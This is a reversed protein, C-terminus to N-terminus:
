PLKVYTFRDNKKSYNNVKERLTKFHRSKVLLKVDKYSSCFTRLFSQIKNILIEDM